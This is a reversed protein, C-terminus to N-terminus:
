PLAGSLCRISDTWESLAAVTTRISEAIRDAENYALMVVSVCVPAHASQNTQSHTVRDFM